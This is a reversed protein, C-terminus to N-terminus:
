MHVLIFAGRKVPEGATLSELWANHDATRMIDDAILESFREGLGTFYILHYGYDSTYILESDGVARSEDFLWDEIEPVVKMSSFYTGQYSYKSIQSYYGGETTDDSYEEILGILADETEGGAIFAAYALEAREGLDIEAQELAELYGPDEEGEAFEEPDVTGRLILIQRMSATKYENNDRSVFFIVYTGQETDITTVDGSKRTEELLWPGTDDGLRDGQAMYFTSYPESYSFENFEKAAAIFDDESGISEAIAAAAEHAEKIADASVADYEDDDEYDEADPIDAYVMLSRYNIIDLEDANEAYHAELEQTTYEFSDRVHLSYLNAISVFELISRYANLNISSGYMQQLLSDASRLGYMAAETSVSAIDADIDAIQGDSLTFGSAQAANYLQTLYVLRDFTMSAIMDAWTEGTEPNYVQTSLPRGSVPMSGSMGEFQSMFNVYEMYGMNFFYEFETATFNVGDVTVVPLTRRIYNSNVLLSVALLVMFVTTVSIAIVRTRKKAKEEKQLRALKRNAKDQKQQFMDNM